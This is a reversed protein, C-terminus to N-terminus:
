ELAERILFYICSLSWVMAMVVILECAAYREYARHEQYQKEYSQLMKPDYAIRSSCDEYAPTKYSKASEKESRERDKRRSAEEQERKVRNITCASMCAVIAGRSPM